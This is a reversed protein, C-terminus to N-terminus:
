STLPHGVRHLFYDNIEASILEFGLVLIVVQVTVRVHNVWPLEARHQTLWRLHLALGGLLAAFVAVRLNVVPVFRGIPEYAIGVVAGLVVAYGASALASNLWPLVMKKWGFWGLVLSLAMWVTAIALSREFQLGTQTEASVGIAFRRFLDTIELAPLIFGLLIWGYQLSQEIIESGKERLRQFPVTSAALASALVLFALARQNLLPRFEEIPEYALSGPIAFLLGTALAYIVLAPRWVYWLKWRTGYWVLPLAELSWLIVVPFGRLGIATAGVLLGVAMLTYRVAIETSLQHRRRIGLLIAVYVAGVALTLVSMWGRHDPAVLAFLGGYYAAGNVVSLIQRRLALPQSSFLIAYVEFALFLAWFLSIAGAATVLSGSDYSQVYWSFYIIYTACLPIPELVIWTPKRLLVALVGVDLLFVYAVTGAASGGSSLLFPTLYGGACALLSVAPSDYYVAQAFALATIAAMATLAVPQPILHYFNFSAYVSLYLVAQGAGVLGQGFVAYGRLHSRHALFLLGAGVLVGVAVRVGQSIWNQDVAYKFFFAMGLILAVAGIRNLLRGGILAEWEDTGRVRQALREVLSPGEPKRQAIGIVSSAIAIGPVAEEVVQRAAPLVTAPAPPSVAAPPLAASEAVSLEVAVPAALQPSAGIRPLTEVLTALQKLEVGQTGVRQKLQQVETALFSARSWLIFVMVFLVVVGLVLLSEM